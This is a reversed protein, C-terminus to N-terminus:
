IASSSPVWSKGSHPCLRFTIECEPCAPLLHNYLLVRPFISFRLSILLPSLATMGLFIPPLPTQPLGLLLPYWVATLYTPLINQLLLTVFYHQIWMEKTGQTAFQTYPTGKVKRLPSVLTSLASNRPTWFLCFSFMEQPLQIRESHKGLSTLLNQLLFDHNNGLHSHSPHHTWARLWHSQGWTAEQIQCCIQASCASVKHWPATYQTQM